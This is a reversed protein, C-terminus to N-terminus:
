RLRLWPPAPNGSVSRDADASSLGPMRDVMERIAAIAQHFRPDNTSGFDRQFESWGIGEPLRKTEPVFRAIEFEVSLRAVAGKERQVFQALRIGALGVAVDAFSFGSGLRADAAEKAISVAEATDAGFLGSIMASVVFHKWLDGRGGITPKEAATEVASRGARPEVQEFVGELVPAFRSWDADDVTAALGLLLARPAREAPLERAASAARRVLLDALADGVARCDIGPAHGPGLPLEANRQAADVVARRVAAADRTWASPLDIKTSVPPRGDLLALYHIATRDEGAGEAMSQYAARLWQKAIPDIRDFSTARGCRLEEGLVFMCFANGPDFKIEFQKAHSKRDGLQPRMVSDAENSHIAGLVHGLEHVLIELRERASVHQSWERILVHSHLPGRTGGLHTLGQPIRYQSTFGVAIRAPNPDVKREFEALSQEFRVIANDSHWTGVAAVEFKVRATYEFIESAERLRERLRKEWVPRAAPEDDDVLIMVPIVAVPARAIGGAGGAAPLTAPHRGGPLTVPAFRTTGESEIFYHISYPPLVARQWRGDLYVSANLPEDAQLVVVQRPELPVTRTRSDARGLEAPVAFFVRQNTRNAIVAPAATARALLLAFAMLALSAVRGIRCVKPGLLSRKCGFSDGFCFM